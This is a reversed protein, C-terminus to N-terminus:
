RNAVPDAGAPNQAASKSRPFDSRRLIFLLAFLPILSLVFFIPGGQHHIPGDIFRPNVNVTFWALVTIRFGNRLIGLPFIALALLAKKWGTRLFMHGAILSTIFLVFTSRVGSCEEAVRISAGPFQFAMGTRFFPMGILSIMWDAANASAHQLGISLADGWARPIPIMFVLFAVAFLHPRMRQWGLTGLGIAGLLLLYSLTSFGLADNRALHSRAWAWYLIACCLGAFSFASIRFVQFASIPSRTAPLPSRQVEFTSRQVNFSSRLTSLLGGPLRLHILYLSIFPILLIHSAIETHLAHRALQYLPVAFLATLLLIGLLFRVIPRSAGAPSPAALSDSVPSTPSDLPAM